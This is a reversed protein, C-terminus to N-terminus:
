FIFSSAKSDQRMDPFNSFSRQTPPAPLCWSKCGREVKIDHVPFPGPHGLQDVVETLGLSRAWSMRLLGVLTALAVGPCGQDMSVVTGVMKGLHCLHLAGPSCVLGMGGQSYVSKHPCEWSLIGQELWGVFHGPFRWGMGQRAKSVRHMSHGPVVHGEGVETETRCETCLARPSEGRRGM